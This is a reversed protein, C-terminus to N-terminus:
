RLTSPMQKSDGVVVVQKARYIAPIADELPIQSSEDFIVVDFLGPKCPLNESLTLPNMSWVPLLDLLYEGVSEFFTRVPMHRQKKNIEHIIQRRAAKYQKKREKGQKKLRYAPKTLLNEKRNHRKIVEGLIRNIVAIQKSKDNSQLQILDQTLEWGSLKNFQTEFRTQQLLNHYAVMENLVSVKEKNSRVFKRIVEPLGFFSKLEPLWHNIQPLVSRLESLELDFKEISETESQSFLFRKQSNFQVIDPHIQSFDEILEKSDPHELIKLYEVQSLGDLKNRLNFILDIENDPDTINLNHRLKVKVEELEGKLRWELKVSELLKIRTNDSIGSHFDRFATKLRSPNRKLRGLISGSRRQRHDSLLSMLETIESMSPKATWAKNAQEAQNLKVKLLQYKKSWNNFSRYKKADSNLLDIQVNDVMNLISAALALRTFSELTENLIFKNQLKIIKNLVRNLDDLRKELKLMVEEESFVARNLRVFVSEALTDAHFAECLRDENEQLFGLGENWEKLDPIKGKAKLKAPNKESKLLTDILTKIKGNDDSERLLRKPYIDFLGDTKYTIEMDDSLAGTNLKEWSIGLNQYFTKKQNKDTNFHAVLNHLGKEELRNYVVELASRKESVLLVRKGKELLAGILSVITHSKGTGPPGQIVINNNLAESIVQYQSRDLVNLPNFDESKVELKKDGFLIESVQAGPNSMIVEYDTGLASRKYNFNGVGRCTIIQWGDVATFEQGTVIRQGSNNDNFFDSIFDIGEQIEGFSEPLDLKYFQNFYHRLVPNVKYVEDESDLTYNVAIKRTQTLTSEKYLLPSILYDNDTQSESGPPSWQIFVSVDLVTDLGYEQKYFRAKKWIKEPSIGEDTDIFWLKNKNAYVFPNRRSFDYLANRLTILEQQIDM